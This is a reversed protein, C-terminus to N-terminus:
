IELPLFKPIRILILLPNLLAIKTAGNMEKKLKGTVEWAEGHVYRKGAPAIEDWQSAKNHKIKNFGIVKYM